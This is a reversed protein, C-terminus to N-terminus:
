PQDSRRETSPYRCMRGAPTGRQAWLDWSIPMAFSGDLLRVVMHRKGVSYAFPLVIEKLPTSALAKLQLSVEITVVTGAPAVVPGSTTVSLPRALLPGVNAPEIFYQRVIEQAAIRIARQDVARAKKLM